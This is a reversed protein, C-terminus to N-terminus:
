ILGFRILDLGFLTHIGYFSRVPGLGALGSAGGLGLRSAAASTEEACTWVMHGRPLSAGTPGWPPSVLVRTLGHGVQSDRPFELSSPSERAVFTPDLTRATFHM